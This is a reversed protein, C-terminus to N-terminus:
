VMQEPHFVEDFREETLFGLQVCAEKLSINNKYALKATKAANEYGIYPNLATVLMLSNHLNSAMKDENATIGVACNDNFSIMAESLLRVSQTFNYIIVPMFVNLEFNGQSAAMGIATDNGIVQVAVMTVAECQTPNVKGPMISSGPENEPIKIEGLGLRPGSALWRVDNAIKMLDAALAKLAGHAFVIEDKSTLAHFKNPATIFHKGTIETVAEAVRVDFDKPANLGTGVATGGLALEKLEPLAIELLRRDKELSSRWGSIEQSFTIPTADQLHTRGSKVIGEHKEELMKFTAILKDLAPFVKDEIGLVAAISMATPFTDNSSQSMNIDDNPHLIKKGAIENGRNAIVENANMNSQTGSGTQWVVLPFHENLSGSMVEDCAQSIASLKEDTMKEPKLQNNAIAAAKKLVGFAHTIERPMVEIGVGIKFNEHSRETQAAWYKDAPVKVEGMSDHEIRYEM